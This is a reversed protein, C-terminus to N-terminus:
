AGTERRVLCNMPSLYNLGRSRFANNNVAVVGSGDVVVMVVLVVVVVVVVVGVAVAVVVIVVGTVLM